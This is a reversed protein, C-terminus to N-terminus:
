VASHVRFPTTECHPAAALSTALAMASVGAPPAVLLDTDGSSSSVTVVVVSLWGDRAADSEPSAGSGM